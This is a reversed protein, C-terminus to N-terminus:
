AGRPVFVRSFVVVVVSLLRIYVTRHESTQLQNFFFKYLPSFTAIVLFRDSFLRLFHKRM